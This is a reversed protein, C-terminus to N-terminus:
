VRLSLASLLFGRSMDRLKDLNCSVADYDISDSPIDNLSYVMRNQIGLKTLLNSIRYNGRSKDMVCVFQKRFIISFIVGHFSTTVIYSSSRFLGVFEEPSSMSYPNLIEHRSIHPTLKVAKKIGKNRQIEKAIPITDSDSKVQYILLHGSSTKSEAIKDFVEPGVLLTPDLVTSVPVNVLPQIQDRLADERVSISSFENLHRREASFDVTAGEHPVETSAAYSILQSKAPRDFAGFFVLDGNTIRQNWIQDSGLVYADYDRGIEGAAHVPGSLALKGTIFENFRKYRLRRMPQLPLRALQKLLSAQPNHVQYPSLLYEPKYDIFEVDHGNSKLFEQLAYAQLVAGYNHACHFSLIGIKM